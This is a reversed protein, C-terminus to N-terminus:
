VFMRFKFKFFPGNMADKGLFNPSKKTDRPVSASITNCVFLSCKLVSQVTCYSGDLHLRWYITSSSVVKMKQDVVISLMWVPEPACGALPLSWRIALNLPCASVGSMVRAGEHHPIQNHVPLATCVNVVPLRGENLELSRNVAAINWITQVDCAREFNCCSVLTV